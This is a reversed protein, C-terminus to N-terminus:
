NPYPVKASVTREVKQGCVACFPMPPDELRYMSGELTDPHGQKCVTQQYEEITMGVEEAFVGARDGPQLAGCSMCYIYEKWCPSGCELCQSDPLISRLLQEDFM